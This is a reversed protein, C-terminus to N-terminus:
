LSIDGEPFQLFLVQGAGCGLIVTSGVVASHRTRYEPPLWLLKVSDRVIWVKDASIGYGYFRPLELGGTPLLSSRGTASTHRLDITGIDTYLELGTESFAIYNLVRGIKLTRHCQGTTGDWIKVTGDLSSSVLQKSDRTFAVSWVSDDHGELTRLCQGTINDWVKITKDWSASALYKSDKSFAVSYISDDHGELTRLCQGTINDWVKITKDWSASALYKSDKSFAASCIYGDHGELTRLCQGTTSDWIKITDDSSTSVLQKSDESFAVSVVADNHGELTQICQGTIVDWIKVTCDWSASAVQTSSCSSAISSVAGNHGNLIHLHQNMDIDWIKVTRDESTSALQTGDSSFAVSCISSTHGRFTQLCQGTACDWVNVTLDQSASALQMSNGSFAVSNVISKHELTWLCQGTASSWVKVTNDVSASAVQKSNGSFAVSNVGAKHELTWLCQGTASDWLKVTKDASGSALQMNNGSFAVSWINDDHGELTRICHGTTSDWIRVTKDKSASVLQTSDGSFAVSHVRDIHGELTQICQGTIVDWIKVTCDWSASALRISDGSFAVSWVRDDHGKLTRICHGTATNWVKITDDGSASALQTSNGSFVASYVIHEHGELTQLCSNWKKEMAPKLNVWEPEECSFLKRIISNEPCFMLASTYLQLPSNEFGVRNARIFRLGDLALNTLKSDKRPLEALYALKSMQLIGESVNGLLSLAELWHLFHKKLFEYVLKSDNLDQGRQDQKTSADTFHNVWYACSYRASALPDPDPPKVRNIPFGPSPIDYINRRLTKSMIQMSRLAITDHEQALGSPFLFGHKALFDKASQHIIYVVDNRITLFSGSWGAIAVINQHTDSINSPLDVLAQLEKLHLPRYTATVTSLLKRCLEPRQRGQEQIQRIMREYLEDLSSPIDNIIDMVELIEANHLEQVVLAVWLFTGDAKLQMLRQVQDQLLQNGQLVVLDSVCQSIYANVAQSVLEANERLELSLRARSEAPRVIQEIDRRNRSSVLWKAQSSSSVQVILHLLQILGTECEDLADIVLYTDQSGIDQLIMIFMKSLADWSNVDEFLQKGAHDYKKRLREILSPRQDLLLYILGRLVATANNLRMDTAQCFFYSLFTNSPQKELENIIGCLLMTKGKGPDGKIWLLRSQGDYHWRGFDNHDLIWRYSERLLGGKTREIRHKDDRPDSVRLDRLFERERESNSTSGIYVDRASFNGSGSHQIGVGDFESRAGPEQSIHSAGISDNNRPVAQRKQPNDYLDSAQEAWPRKAKREM